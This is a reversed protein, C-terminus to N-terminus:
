LELAALDGDHVADTGDCYTVASYTSEEYLIATESNFWGAISGDSHKVVKRIM